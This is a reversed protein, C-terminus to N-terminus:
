ENREPGPFTEELQLIRNELDPHSSMLEPIELGENDDHLKILISKLHETSGYHRQLWDGSILDAESEFTRSYSNQVLMYPITASISTVSTADGMVVSVFLFVGADRLVMQLAHRNIVHGIEHVMVAEFEKRGSFLEILSDTVVVTGDPLALANAGIRSSRFVLKFDHVTAFDQKLEEFWEFYPALDEAAVESPDMFYEDLTEMVGKGLADNWEVPTIHAVVKAIKPIGWIFFSVVTCILGLICFSVWKPRQELWYTWGLGMGPHVRRYLEDYTQLADTELRTGDPLQISRRVKAIPAELKCVKLDFSEPDSIGLIELSDKGHVVVDIISGTSSKGSFRKAQFQIM